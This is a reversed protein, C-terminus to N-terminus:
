GTVLKYDLQPRNVYEQGLSVQEKKMNNNLHHLDAKM